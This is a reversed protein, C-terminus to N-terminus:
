SATGFRKLDGESYGVSGAVGSEDWGRPEELLIQRLFEMKKADTWGRPKFLSIDVGNPIVTLDRDELGFETMGRQRVDPSIAFFHKVSQAAETMIGRWLSRFPAEELQEEELNALNEAPLRLQGRRKAKADGCSSPRLCTNLPSSATSAVTASGSGFHQWLWHVAARDDMKGLHMVLDIAGGGGEELHWNFFQTGTVSVPGRETRWQSKDRRDREAGWRALVVELPISRVADAQRRFDDRPVAGAM